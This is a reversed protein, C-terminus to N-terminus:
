EFKGVVEFDSATLDCAQNKLGKRQQM